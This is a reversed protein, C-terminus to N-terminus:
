SRKKENLMLNLKKIIQNGINQPRFDIYFIIRDILEGALFICIISKDIVYLGSAIFTGIVLLISIRVFRLSFHLRKPDDFRFNYLSATLRILGIFIFPIVNNTFFSIILLSSLFTQGSHLLVKKSSDTYLYVSDIVLLLVMGTIASALLVGPLAFFVAMLSLGSFLLYLVIERSLPSSRFNIVARWARIKRGLHILSILAAIVILISYVQTQPFIGSFLSTIVWSVSLTVLYTFIVLIWEGSVIKKGEPIRGQDHGFNTEPILKLPTENKVGTIQLAPDLKKDPMWDFEDLGTKGPISGFSLAGTPCASTCAPFRGEGFGTYCLNCKNMVKKRLEFKPADWPCNWQCYRCGLCKEENIIVANTDSDRYIAGSPCGSLCVPIECHNCALSLNIVPLSPIADHNYTYIDRPMVTWGNELICAASCAKCNVCRSHDFIFGQRM